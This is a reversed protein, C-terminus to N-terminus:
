ERIVFEIQGLCNNLARHIDKSSRIFFIKKNTLRGGKKNGVNNKIPPM